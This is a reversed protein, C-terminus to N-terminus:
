RRNIMRANVFAMALSRREVSAKPGVGSSHICSIRTNLMILAIGHRTELDAIVYSLNTALCDADHDVDHLVGVQNDHVPGRALLAKSKM